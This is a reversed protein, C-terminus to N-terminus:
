PTLAWEGDPPRGLASQLRRAPHLVARLGPEDLSGRAPGERALGTRRHLVYRDPTTAGSVVAEGLGARAEVVLASSDRPDETFVVGAARPEVMRQVLVAM